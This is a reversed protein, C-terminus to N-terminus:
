KEKLPLLFKSIELLKYIYPFSHNRRELSCTISDGLSFLYIILCILGVDTKESKSFLEYIYIYIYKGLYSPSLVLTVPHWTHNSSGNDFYKNLRKM